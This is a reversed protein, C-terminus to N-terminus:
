KLHNFDNFCVLSPVLDDDFSLTTISANEPCKIDRIDPFVSPLSASLYARLFDGHTVVCISKGVNEIVTQTVANYARKVFDHYDESGEVSFEFPSSSLLSYEEAFFKKIFKWPLGEFIGFNYEMLDYKAIINLSRSGNVAKATQFARILPSTYVTDIHVDRFRESLKDLQNFGEECVGIDTQGMCIRHFNGISKAHRVLYLVTM